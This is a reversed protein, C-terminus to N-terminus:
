DEVKEYTKEFINPKCPYYMRDQAFPEKIIWDGFSALMDGESTEIHYGRNDSDKTWEIDDFESFLLGEAGEQLQIAEIVIQKKRFKM